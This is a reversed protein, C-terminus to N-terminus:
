WMRTNAWIDNLRSPSSFPHKRFGKRTLLGRIKPTVGEILFIHVPVSWDLGKLVDLEGGEVDLSWFDVRSVNYARLVDQTKTCSVLSSGRGTAGCCGGSTSSFSAPGTYSCLATCVRRARPTEDRRRALRDCNPKSAEVLLGRWGLYREFLYSNSCYASGDLAGSEVFFGPSRGKFFTHYVYVTDYVFYDAAFRRLYHKAENYRPPVVAKKTYTYVDGFSPNLKYHRDRAQCDSRLVNCNLAACTKWAACLITANEHAFSCQNPIPPPDLCGQRSVSPLCSGRCDASLRDLKFMCATQPKRNATQPKRNATQPAFDDHSLAPSATRSVSAVGWGWVRESQLFASDLSGMKKGCSGASTSAM